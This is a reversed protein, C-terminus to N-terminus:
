RQGQKINTRKAAAADSPELYDLYEETQKLSSHGMITQLRYIDLNERLHDIAFKHRLDHVRFSFLTLGREARDKNARRRIACVNSSFNKYPEGKDGHWFVFASKLHTSTGKLTGAADLCVKDALPIMRPRGNKTKRLDIEQRKWSVQHRELFVGEDARMGTAALVRLIRAVMPPCYELFEGFEIDTPVPRPQRRARILRRDFALVPNDERWEQSVCYGMIESFATLDNRVTRKTVSKLRNKVFQNVHRLKIEEVNLDARDSNKAASAIFVRIREASTLYRTATGPKVTEPLANAAWSLAADGFTVQEFGSFIANRRELIPRAVRRAEKRSRTQLSRRFDQGGRRDRFYWRGGSARKYIHADVEDDSIRM